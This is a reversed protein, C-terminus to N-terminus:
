KFIILFCISQIPIERSGENIITLSEKNVDVLIGEIEENDLKIKIGKDLHILLFIPLTLKFFIDILEPSSAVTKGFNFALERRLFPDIDRLNPEHSPQVFRGQSTIDSIKLLPVLIEKENNKLLVFDRGVVDVRGNLKKDKITQVDQHHEDAKKRRVIALIRRVWYFIGKREKEDLLSDSDEEVGSELCDVKVDVLQGFLGEFLKRRGEEPRENSLALDLLLENIADINEELKRTQEEPLCSTPSPFRPTELRQPCCDEPIFFDDPAGAPVFEPCCIGKDIHNRTM